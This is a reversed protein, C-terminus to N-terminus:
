FWVGTAHAELVTLGDASFAVRTAPLERRWPEGVSKGTRADWTRVSRDLWSTVLRRGDPSYAGSLTGLPDGTLEFRRTWGATERIVAGGPAGCALQAGDPSFAVWGSGPLRHVRRGAEDWVDIGAASSTAVWPRKPHAALAAVPGTRWERVETEAAVDWVRVMGSVDASVLRGDARFALGTVVEQHGTLLTPGSRRLSALYRWEWGRFDPPCRSLTEWAQPLQNTLYLRGASAVREAAVLRQERKLAESLEDRSASAEAEKKRIRANSVGLTVMTVLVAVTTMVSLGTFLPHRRVARWALEWARAHRALVPRGGLWRALDDALAEASPYRDAPEKALCKLCVAELDRPVAPNALSPPDPHRETVLELTALATEANFPASGTLREYLIAGVGYVDAATTVHSPTLAQEPAMYAPTGVVAATLSRPADPDFRGALGFDVVHPRGDEDLLVNGPKLDRHLIGRQHAHHVARAVAEVVRVHRRLDAGPGAPCEALSGGPYWKMVFYPIGPGWTGVEYVPVIHPHDLRAIAEAERRFREGTEPSHWALTKIAVVRDLAPQRAKYVVGMGGRGLEGLVDYGRLIPVGVPFVPRPSQVRTPTQPDALLDHIRTQLDPFRREYDAPTAPDPSRARLAYEAQILDLRLDPDSLVPLRGVYDEVRAPEGARLRFELDVHALEVALRAPPPDPLFTLLDPRAPGRWAEEFRKLVDEWVSWDAATAHSVLNPPTAPSM